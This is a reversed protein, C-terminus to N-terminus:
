CKRSQVKSALPSKSTHKLVTLDSDMIIYENRYYYVYSLLNPETSYTLIGDVDFVGDIQKELIGHKLSVSTSTDKDM